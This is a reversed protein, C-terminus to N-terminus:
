CFEGAVIVSCYGGDWACRKSGVASSSRSREHIQEATPELPEGAAEWLARYESAPM